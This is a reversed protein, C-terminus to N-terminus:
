KVFHRLREPYETRYRKFAAPLECTHKCGLIKHMHYFDNNVTGLARGLKTAIQDYTLGEDIRLAIEREQFPTLRKM